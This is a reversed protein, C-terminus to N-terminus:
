SINLCVLFRTLGFIGPKPYLVLGLKAGAGVFLGFKIGTGVM